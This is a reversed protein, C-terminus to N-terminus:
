GKSGPRATAISSQFERLFISNEKLEPYLLLLESIASEAFRLITRRFVVYDLTAIAAGGNPETVSVNKGLGQRSFVFHNSFYDGGIAFTEQAGADLEHIVGSWQYVFDLLGTELVHYDKPKDFLLYVTSMALGKLSGLECKPVDFYERDRQVTAYRLAYDIRFQKM